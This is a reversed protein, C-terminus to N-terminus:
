LAAREQPTTAGKGGGDLGALRTAPGTLRLRATALRQRIGLQPGRAWFLLTVVGLLLAWAAWYLKFAIFSAVYPGFGNMESYIWNPGSNYVLLHHIGYTAGHIFVVIMLVLVHGVYKHNVLVHITM